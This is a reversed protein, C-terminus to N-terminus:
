LLLGLLLLLTKGFQSTVSLSSPGDYSSLEYLLSLHGELTSPGIYPTSIEEFHRSTERLRFSGSYRFTRGYCHSTGADASLGQMLPYGVVFTFQVKLLTCQVHLFHLDVVFPLLEKFLFPGVMLLPLEQLSPLGVFV